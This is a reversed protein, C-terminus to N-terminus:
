PNLLAQTSVRMINRMVSRLKECEAEKKILCRELNDPKHSDLGQAVAHLKTLTSFHVEELEIIKEQLVIAHEKWPNFELSNSYAQSEDQCLAKPLSEQSFRILPCSKIHRQFWAANQKITICEVAASNDKSCLNTNTDNKTMSDKLNFKKDSTYIALDQKSHYTFEDQYSVPLSSKKFASTLREIHKAQYQNMEKLERIIKDKAEVVAIQHCKLIDHNSLVAKNSQCSSPAVINVYTKIRVSAPARAKDPCKYEVTSASSASSIQYM